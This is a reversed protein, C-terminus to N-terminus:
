KKFASPADSFQTLSNSSDSDDMDTALRGFVSDIGPLMSILSQCNGTDVNPVYHGCCCLCSKGNSVCTTGRLLNAMFDMKGRRDGGGRRDDGGRGGRGPRMQSDPGMQSNETSNMFAPTFVAFFMPDSSQSDQRSMRNQGFGGFDGNNEFSSDEDGWPGRGGRHHRRHPGFPPPPFRGRGGRGGPGFPRPGFHHRRHSPPPPYWGHRGRGRPDWRRPPFRRGRGGPGFPRPPFRGRGGRGGPGFRDYDGMDYDDGYDSGWDDDYSDDYWPDDGQRPGFGGPGQRNPGFGRRGGPGQRGPGFSQGRGSPGFGSRGQGPGFDPEFGGRGGQDPGFGRGGQDPGFGRGGQDPGFQSPPGFDQDDPGFSQRQGRGSFGGMGGQPGSQQPGFRDQGGPRMGPYSQSGQGMGGMGFSGRARGRGSNSGSWDYQPSAGADGFSGFSSDDYNGFDAQRKKRGLLTYDTFDSDMASTPDDFQTNYIANMVGEDDGQDIMGQIQEMRGGGLFLPARCGGDELSIECAKSDDCDEHPLPRIEKLPCQPGRRRGGGGGGRGRGMGDDSGDYDMSSDDENTANRMRCQFSKSCFGCKPPAGRKKYETQIVTYIETAKAEVFKKLYDPWQSKVPIYRCAEPLSKMDMSPWWCKLNEWESWKGCRDRPPFPRPGPRPRPRPRPRPGPGPRDMGPQSVVSGSIEQRDTRNQPLLSILTLLTSDPDIDDKLVPNNFNQYTSEDQTFAISALGAVFLLSLERM